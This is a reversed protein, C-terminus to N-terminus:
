FSLQNLPTNPSNNIATKVQQIIELVKNYCQDPTARPNSIRFAELKQFILNDYNGHSGNHVATSLPIGNLAENLHFANGSSAAKQVVLHTQKNLPIIHHAQRPDGVVLGLMKRLQQRCYSDSGFKILGDPAISWVLKVKSNIDSAANVIKLGYKTSITAWGALPITSAFSLSANLGDGEITYIVGNVLDAAEGFVPVLGFVDLTIHVVDKSTEWILKTESWDPNLEKLIQYKVTLYTIFAPHLGPNSLDLAIFPDIQSCYVYDLPRVFYEQDETILAINILKESLVDDNEQIALYILDKVYQIADSQYEEGTPNVNSELYSYISTTVAVNEQIFLQSSTPLQSIFHQSRLFEPTPPLVGIGGEFNPNDSPPVGGTGGSNSGGTGSGGGYGDPNPIYTGLSYWGGTAGGSGGSGGSCEITIVMEWQLCPLPLGTATSVGGGSVCVMEVEAFCAKTRGGENSNNGVSTEDLLRGELDYKVVKGTFSEFSKIPRDSTYELIYALFGDSYSSFVLNKFSYLTSEKDLFLSYTYNVSDAQIVKLISDAKFDTIGSMLKSSKNKNQFFGAQDLATYLSPENDLTTFFASPLKERKKQAEFNDECSSILLILVFFKVIFKM